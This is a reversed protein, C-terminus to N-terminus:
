GFDTGQPGLIGPISRALHHPRNGVAATVNGILRHKSCVIEFKDAGFRQEPHTAKVAQRHRGSREHRLEFQAVGDTGHGAEDGLGCAAIKCEPALDFGSQLHRDVDRGHIEAVFTEDGFEERMLHGPAQRDVCEFQLDDLPCWHLGSGDAVGVQPFQGPKAYRHGDVIKAAGVGVRRPQRVHGRGFELEIARQQSGRGSRGTPLRQARHDFVRMLASDFHNGFTHFGRFFKTLNDLHAAVVYAQSM